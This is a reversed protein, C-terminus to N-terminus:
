KEKLIIEIIKEGNKQPLPHRMKSIKEVVFKTGSKFLVEHETIDYAANEILKGNKGFVKFIVNHEPKKKLWRYLAKESHTTSMFGKDIWEKGVKFQKKIQKETFYASRQLVKKNYKSIPLKELANDLIKQMAKLERTLKVGKLGRLANNLNSYIFTTYVKIMAESEVVIWRGLNRKKNVRTLAKLYLRNGKLIRVYPLLAVDIKNVYLFLEKKKLLWELIQEWIKELFATISEKGKAFIRLMNEFLKVSNNYAQKSKAVIHTKTAAVVTKMAAFFEQQIKSIKQLAGIKVLQTYPIFFTAIFAIGFGVVYAMRVFNFDESNAKKFYTKIKTYTESFAKYVKELNITVLTDIFSDFNELTEQFNKTNNFPAELIGGFFKFTSSIFDVLGNWIGSYFAVIEPLKTINLFANAKDAVSVYIANIKETIFANYNKIFQKLQAIIIRIKESVFNPILDNFEFKTKDNELQGLLTDLPSVSMTFADIVNEKKLFYDETETDWFKDAIKLFDIGDGIKKVIWGVAKLPAFFATMIYQIGDLITGTFTIEEEIYGKEVLQKLIEQSIPFKKNVYNVVNKNYLQNEKVREKVDPAVKGRLIQKSFDGSNDELFLLIEGEKPTCVEYAEKIKNGNKSVHLIIKFAFTDGEDGIRGNKNTDYFFNTSYITPNPNSDVDTIIEIQRSKKKKADPFYLAEIERSTRDYFKMKTLPHVYTMGRITRGYYVAM